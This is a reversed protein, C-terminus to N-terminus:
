MAPPYKQNNSVDASAKSTKAHALSSSPPHSSPSSFTFFPLPPPPPHSQIPNNEKKSLLSSPHGRIPDTPDIHIHTHLYGEYQTHTHTTQSRRRRTKGFKVGLAPKTLSEIGRRGPSHGDPFFIFAFARTSSMRGNTRHQECQSATAAPHSRSHSPIPHYVIFPFPFLSLALCTFCCRRGGGTKAGPRSQHIRIGCRTALM